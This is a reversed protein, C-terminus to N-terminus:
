ITWEAHVIGVLVWAGHHKEFVLRLSRWDMGGYQPDFGPFHYEIFAAEPYFDLLNNILNGSGLFVGGGISDPRAFEADYIFRDTYERLTMDIPKGSGDFVGWHYVEPNSGFNQIERPCFLQDSEEIYPYPSFRLCVSPDVLSSLVEWDRNQIALIARRAPLDLDAPITGYQRALYSKNVWGSIGQVTVATWISGDVEREEGPLPINKAFPPLTGIIPNEVGPQERINLVDDPRVGVVAYTSGDPTPSAASPTQETPIPSPPLATPTQSNEPSPTMRAGAPFPTPLVERTPTGCSSFLLMASLMGAMSILYGSRAEPLPNINIKM